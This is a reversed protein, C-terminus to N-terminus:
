QFHVGLKLGVTTWLHWQEDDLDEDFEPAGEPDITVETFQGWGLQVFPGITFPRLDFDLGAQGGLEWGTFAFDSRNGGLEAEYALVSWGVFGGLWPQLQEGPAFNFIGELGVGVDVAGCDADVDDCFDRIREDLAVPAVRLYAALLVGNGFQWGAEGTFPIAFDVQSSLAEDGELDGSPWAAGARLGLYVGADAARPVLLALAMGLAVAPTLTRM